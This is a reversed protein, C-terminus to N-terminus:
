IRFFAIIFDLSYSVPVPAKNTNVESYECDIEEEVENQEQIFHLQPVAALAYEGCLEYSGSFFVTLSM